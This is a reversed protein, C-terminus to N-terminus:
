DAFGFCFLFIFCSHLNYFVIFFVSLSPTASSQLPTYSLFFLLLLAETVSVVVLPVFPRTENRKQGGQPSRRAELETQYCLFSFFSALIMLFIWAYCFLFFLRSLSLFYVWQIGSNLKKELLDCKNLFLVLDV